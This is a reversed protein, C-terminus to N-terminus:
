NANYIVKGVVKVALDKLLLTQTTKNLTVGRLQNNGKAKLKLKIGDLRSIDGSIRVEVPSETAGDKTGAVDKQILDVNLISADLEQGNVDLPSIALELDAPIKNVATATAHVYAGEALQLKDIDKHWDTETDTYVIVAKDGFALPCEFKYEPALRYTYGLKITATEQAAKASTVTFKIKMPEKLKKILDSLNDVILPTYGTLGTPAQRCIVIRTVYPTIGDPSAAIQIPAVAIPSTHTDSTLQAHITGGLPMTSSITLWIQPNDIDAVVEEETLFDPLSNIEVTGVDNLDIVPDFVGRAETIVISEFSAMGSVAVSSTNPFALEAIKIKLNVNAKLMFKGNELKVYNNEDVTKVNLRTVNFVIQLRSNNIAYDTLTLVNNQTDFSNPMSPCTMTLMDPLDVQLKSLKRIAEPLTVDVTLNVGQGNEGLAVYELSKIAPDADFEYELLSINGEAEPIDITGTQGLINYDYPLTITPPLQEKVANPIAPLDIGFSLGQSNNAAITIRNVNVEVPAIPNDPEKFLKYDGNEETTILDSTSIDLLDDLLIDKTSNNGPLTIEDGGFGLTYDVKDFDYDSNTCGLLLLCSGLASLVPLRYHKFLKKM